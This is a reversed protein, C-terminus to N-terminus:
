LTLLPLLLGLTGGARCHDVLDFAQNRHQSLLELDALGQELVLGARFHVIKLCHLRQDLLLLFQLHLPAALMFGLIGNGRDLFRTGLSDGLVAAGPVVIQGLGLLLSGAEGLVYDLRVLARRQLQDGGWDIAHYLLEGHMCHTADHGRGLRQEDNHRGLAPELDFRHHRVAVDTEHLDPLLGLDLHLCEVEGTVTQQAAM